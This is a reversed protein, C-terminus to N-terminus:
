FLRKIQGPQYDVYMRTPEFLDYKIDLQCLQPRFSLFSKRRDNSEKSFYVTLSIKHGEHSYPGHSRVVTLLQHVQEHRLLCAIIPPPGQRGKPTNRAWATHENSSLLLTSCSEWSRRFPSAFFRQSPRVNNRQSRDELDIVKSCLFLLEQDCDPIVNLRDEVSAIRQELGQVRHQFGAIDQRITKTEAVLASINADMEELRHSVTTIEQLIRELTPGQEMDSPVTTHDPPPTGGTAAM